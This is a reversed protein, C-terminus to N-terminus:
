LVPLWGMFWKKLVKEKGSREGGEQQERGFECMARPPSSPSLERSRGKKINGAWNKPSQRFFPALFLFGAM